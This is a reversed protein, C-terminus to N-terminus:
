AGIYNNDPAQELCWWWLWHFLKERQTRPVKSSARFQRCKCFSEKIRWLWCECCQPQHQYLYKLVAFEIASGPSNKGILNLFISLDKGINYGPKQTGKQWRLLQTFSILRQKTTQVQPDKLCHGSIQLALIANCNPCCSESCCLINTNECSRWNM